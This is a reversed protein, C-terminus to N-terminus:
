SFAARARDPRRLLRLDLPERAFALSYHMAALRGKDGPRQGTLADAETAGPPVALVIVGLEDFHQLGGGRADHRAARVEPHTAAAHQLM